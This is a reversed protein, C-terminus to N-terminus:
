FQYTIGSIGRLYTSRGVIPTAAIEDALWDLNASVFLNWHDDLAYLLRAGATLNLAAGPAYAARGPADEEPRVGYYYRTFPQSQWHPGASLVLTAKRLPVSRELELAAQSGGYTDLVDHSARLTLNFRTPLDASLVVGAEVTHDRDGMGALADSDAEEYGYFRYAGLLSLRIREGNWVRYSALPGAFFFRDGAYTIFPIPIIQGSEEGRYLRSKVVAGAGVSVRGLAESPTVMRLDLDTQGAQLTFRAQRFNPPGMQGRPNNSTGLPEAPLGLRSRKVAGDGDLDQHARLAYPGPPLDDIRWTAEPGTVELVAERFPETQGDFAAADRSLRRRLTGGAPNLGQARILLPLTPPADQAPTPLGLLPLVLSLLALLPPATKM